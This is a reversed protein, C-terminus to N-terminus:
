ATREARGVDRGHLRDPLHLGVRAHDVDVRQDQNHGRLIARIQGVVGLPLRSLVGKVRPVHNSALPVRLESARRLYEVDHADVAVREPLHLKPLLTRMRRQLRVVLADPWEPVEEGKGPLPVPPRHDDALRAAQALAARGPKLVDDLLREGGHQPSHVQM